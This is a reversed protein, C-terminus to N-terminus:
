VESINREPFEDAPGQLHSRHVFRRGNGRNIVRIHQPNRFGADQLVDGGIHCLKGEPAVDVRAGLSGYRVSALHIAHRDAAVAKSKIVVLLDQRIAANGRWGLGPFLEGVSGGLRGLARHVTDSERCHVILM